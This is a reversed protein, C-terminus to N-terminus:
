NNASPSNQKKREQEISKLYQERQNDSEPEWGLEFAMQIYKKYDSAYQSFKTSDASSVGGHKAKERIESALLASLAGKQVLATVSRPNLKLALGAYKLANGYNGGTREKRTLINILEALYEQKTLDRLYIGSDIAQQKIGTREIYWQNRAPNAGNTTEVNWVDSTQRDRLRCFLHLPAMVGRFPLDPDVREMLALFLTPMSVCNGKRTALYTSLLQNELKSGLPDDLDYAFPQQENWIGPEYLFLKVALFKDIDRNRGALMRNIEANMAELKDLCEQVNITGDFEKAVILAWLGIDLNEEKVGAINWITQGLYERMPYYRKPFKEQPCLPIASLILTLFSLRKFRM